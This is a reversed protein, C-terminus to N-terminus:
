RSDQPVLRRVDLPLTSGHSAEAAEPEPHTRGGPDDHHRALPLDTAHTHACAGVQAPYRDCLCPLSFVHQQPWSAPCRRPCVQPVISIHMGPARRPHRRRDSCTPTTPTWIAPPAYQQQCRRRCAQSCAPHPCTRLRMHRLLRDVLHAPRRQQPRDTGGAEVPAPPQCGSGHTRAPPPTM